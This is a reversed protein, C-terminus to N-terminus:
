TLRDIEDCFAEAESTVVNPLSLKEGDALYLNLFSYLGAKSNRYSYSSIFAWEIEITKLPRRVVLNDGKRSIACNQVFRKGVYFASFGVLAM